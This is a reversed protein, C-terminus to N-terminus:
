ESRAAATVWYHDNRYLVPIVMDARYKDETLVVYDMNNQRAASIIEAAGGKRVLAACPPCNRQAKDTMFVEREATTGFASSAVFFRAQPPTNMKAWRAVEMLASTESPDGPRFHKRYAMRLDAIVAVCLLFLTLIRLWPKICEFKVVSLMTALWVFLFIGIFRTGRLNNYVLPFGDVNFYAWQALLMFGFSVAYLAILLYCALGFLESQEGRRAILWLPISALLWFRLEGGALFGIIALTATFMLDNHVAAGVRNRLLVAVLAFLSVAITASHIVWEPWHSYIHPPYFLYQLAAPISAGGVGDGAHVVPVLVALLGAFFNAVKGWLGGMVVFAFGFGVTVLGACQFIARWSFDRYMLWALAIIQILLIGSAHFNAILGLGAFIWVLRSPEGRWRFFGWLMLPVFATFLHRRSFHVFPGMGFNEGALPIFIPLSALVAFGLALRWRGIIEMLLLYCGILYIFNLPAVLWKYANLIDGTALYVSKLYADFQAQYWSTAPQRVFVEVQGEWFLSFFSLKDPALEARELKYQNVKSYFVDSTDSTRIAEVGKGSFSISWFLAVFIAVALVCFVRVGRTAYDNIVM